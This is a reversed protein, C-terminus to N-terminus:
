PSLASERVANLDHHIPEHRTTRLIRELKNNGFLRSAMEKDFGLQTLQRLTGDEAIEFAEKRTEVLALIQPLMIKPNLKISKILTKSFRAWNPSPLGTTSQARIRDLGWAAWKLAYPRAWQLARILDEPKNTFKDVLQERFRESINKADQPPVAQQGADSSTFLHIVWFAIEINLKLTRDIQTNLLALLESQPPKKNIMMLWISMIGPTAPQNKDPHVENRIHFDIIHTLLQLIQEPTVLNTLFAKLSPPETEISLTQVIQLDGTKIWREILQLALQDSKERSPPQQFVYSEWYPTHTSGLAQPRSRLTNNSPVGEEWGPFLETLLFRLATSREISEANLLETAETFFQSKEKKSFQGTGHRLTDIHRSISSHLLPFTSKITAAIILDVLDIEGHLTEWADAVWRLTQKLQRPTSLLTAISNPIDPSQTSTSLVPLEETSSNPNIRSIGNRPPATIDLPFKASLTKHLQEITKRTFHENLPPIDITFRALKELDFRFEAASSALIIQISSLNSLENLLARLPALRAHEPETASRNLGAFREFDEIWLIIKIRTALAVHDIKKLVVSPQEPRALRIAKIWPLGTGEIADVYDAPLGKLPFIAVHEALLESVASLIGSIAAQTSDFPWLSVQCIYVGKTNTSSAIKESILNLISSKGAGTEGVLAITPETDSLILSSLRNAIRSHNFRDNLHTSIPADDALWTLIPHPENSPPVVTRSSPLRRFLSKAHALLKVTTFAAIPLAPLLLLYHITESLPADPICAPSLLQQPQLLGHTITLLAGITAPIWIPPYSKLHKIGLLPTPRVDLGRWLAVTTFLALTVTRTIGFSIIKQCDLTKLLTASLGYGALTLATIDIWKSPHKEKTSM